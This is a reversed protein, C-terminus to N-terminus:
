SGRRRVLLYGITLVGIALIARFGPVKMGEPNQTSAATVTEVPAQQKSTDKSEPQGTPQASLKSEGPHCVQCQLGSQSTLKGIKNFAHLKDIDHCRTCQPVVVKGNEEHCGKCDVKTAHIIHPIENGQAKSTGRHCEYCGKKENVAGHITAISTAPHCNQCILVSGELKVPKVIEPPSKHCKTCSENQGHVDILDKHCHSCVAESILANHVGAINKHCYACTQTAVKGAHVKHIPGDHCKTCQPISVSLKDGHCNVCDVSKKAHIVHPTDTHCKKCNVDKATLSSASFNEEVAHAAATLVAAMIFLLCITRATRM